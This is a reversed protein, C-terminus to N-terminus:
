GPSRVGQRLSASVQRGEDVVGKGSLQSALPEVRKESLEVPLEARYFLVCSLLSSLRKM